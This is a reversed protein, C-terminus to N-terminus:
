QAQSLKSLELQEFCANDISNGTNGLKSGFEIFQYNCSRYHLSWNKYAMFIPSPFTNFLHKHFFIQQKRMALNIPLEALETKMTVQARQIEQAPLIVALTSFKPSGDNDNELKSSLLSNKKTLSLFFNLTKKPVFINACTM